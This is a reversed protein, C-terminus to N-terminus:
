LCLPVHCHLINISSGRDTTTGDQFDFIKKQESSTQKQYLVHHYNKDTDYYAALYTSDGPDDAGDVDESKKDDLDYRSIKSTATTSHIIATLEDDVCLSITTHL